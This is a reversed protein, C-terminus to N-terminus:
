SRERMLLPTIVSTSARDSGLGLHDGEFSEAFHHVDVLHDRITHGPFGGELETRKRESALHPFADILVAPRKERAEIAQIPSPVILM